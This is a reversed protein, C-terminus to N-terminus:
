TSFGGSGRRAWWRRDRRLSAIARARDQQREHPWKGHLLTATDTGNLREDEDDLEAIRKAIAEESPASRRVFSVFFKVIGLVLILPLLWLAAEM